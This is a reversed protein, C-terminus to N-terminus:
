KYYDSPRTKADISIKEDESLKGSNKDAYSGVTKVIESLHVGESYYDRYVNKSSCEPCEGSYNEVESMELKVEFPENCMDCWFCYRPMLKNGQIKQAM